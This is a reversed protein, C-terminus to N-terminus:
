SRMSALTLFTLFPLMVEESGSTQVVQHVVVGFEIHRTKREDEIELAESRQSPHLLAEQFRLGIDNM